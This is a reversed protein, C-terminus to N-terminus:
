QALFIASFCAMPQHIWASPWNTSHVSTTEQKTATKNMKCLHLRFSIHSLIFFINIHSTYFGVSHVDRHDASANSPPASHHLASCLFSSSSLFCCFHLTGLLLFLFLCILQPPFSITMELWWMPLLIRSDHELLKCTVEDNEVQRDTERWSRCGIKCSPCSPLFTQFCRCFPQFLM